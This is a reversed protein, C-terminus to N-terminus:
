FSGIFWGTQSFLQHQPMGHQWSKRSTDKIKLMSKKTHSIAMIQYNFFFINPFLKQRNYFIKNTLNWALVWAWNPIIPEWLLTLLSTHSLYIMPAHADHYNGSFDKDHSTHVHCSWTLSPLKSGHSGTPFTPISWSFLQNVMIDKFNWQTHM